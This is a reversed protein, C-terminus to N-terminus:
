AALAQQKWKPEDGDLTVKALRRDARWRIIIGEPNYYGPVAESGYDVLDELALNGVNDAFEGHYLTPVRRLGPTTFTHEEYRDVDFVSFFRENEARLGYGRQIRFGWWEGYHYGPGLNGFLEENNKECWMAFGYNDDRTEIFRKRSQVAMNGWDDFVIAANTGDLKETIRIESYLRPIKGFSQFQSIDTPMM